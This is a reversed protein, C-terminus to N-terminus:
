KRKILKTESQSIVEYKIQIVKDYLVKLGCMEESSYEIMDMIKQKWTLLTNVEIRINNNVERDSLTIKRNAIFQVTRTFYLLYYEKKDLFDKTRRM